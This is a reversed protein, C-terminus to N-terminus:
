TCICFISDVTRSLVAFILLFYFFPMKSMKQIYKLKSKVM